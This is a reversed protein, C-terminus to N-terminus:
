NIPASTHILCWLFKLKKPLLLLTTKYPYQFYNYVNIIISHQKTQFCKLRSMIKKYERLFCKDFTCQLANEVNCRITESLFIENTSCQSSPAILVKYKKLSITSCIYYWTPTTAKFYEINGWLCSNYDIYYSEENYYQEILNRLALDPFINWSLKISLLAKLKLLTYHVYIYFLVYNVNKEKLMRALDRLSNMYFHLSNMNCIRKTRIM